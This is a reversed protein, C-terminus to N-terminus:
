EKCKLHPLADGCYSCIKADHAKALPPNPWSSVWSWFAQWIETRTSKASFRYAAETGTMAKLLALKKGTIKDPKDNPHLRVVGVFLPVELEPIWIECVTDYRGNNEPIYEFKFMVQPRPQHWRRKFVIKYENVTFM